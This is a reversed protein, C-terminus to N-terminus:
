PPTLQLTHQSIHHGPSGVSYNCGTVDSLPKSLHSVRPDYKKAIAKIVKKAIEPTIENGSVELQGLHNNPTAILDLWVTM